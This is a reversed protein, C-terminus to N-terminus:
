GSPYVSDTDTITFGSSPWFTLFGGLPDRDADFYRGQVTTMAQDVPSGPSPPTM